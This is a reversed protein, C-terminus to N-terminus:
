WAPPSIPRPPRSTSRRGWAPRRLRRSRPGAAGPPGARLAAHVDRRVRQRGRHTPAGRRARALRRRRTGGLTQEETSRRASEASTRRRRPSSLTGGKHFHADIGEATAVRGVEDVTARMARQLAVAADRGHTRAMDDRSGAFLASCWGGNRGSAGFGAIEAEIVAIRLHPDARLLEYATWLGTYGAGVIAVDVDIDGGLAPRPTLSETSRTSGCAALATGSTPRPTM